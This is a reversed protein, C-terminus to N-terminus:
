TASLDCEPDTGGYVAIFQAVFDSSSFQALGCAVAQRSELRCCTDVGSTDIALVM